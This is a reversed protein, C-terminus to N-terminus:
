SITVRRFSRSNRNIQDHFFWWHEIKYARGGLLPVNSGSNILTIDPTLLKNQIVKVNTIVLIPLRSGGDTIVLIPLRRGGDTIVLNV